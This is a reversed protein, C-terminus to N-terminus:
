LEKGNVETQTAPSDVSIIVLSTQAKNTLNAALTRNFCSPVKKSNGKPNIFDWRMESKYDSCEFFYCPIGNKCFLNFGCELPLNVKCQSQHTETRVGRFVSVTCSWLADKFTSRWLTVCCVSDSELHLRIQLLNGQLRFAAITFQCLRCVQIVNSCYNMNM